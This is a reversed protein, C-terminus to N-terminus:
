KETILFYLIENNLNEVMLSEINESLFTVLFEELYPNLKLDNVILHLIEHVLDFKRRIYIIKDTHDIYSNTNAGIDFVIKYTKGCYKIYM